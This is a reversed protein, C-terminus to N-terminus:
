LGGSLSIARSRKRTSRSVLSPKSTARRSRSNRPGPSNSPVLCVPRRGIQERAHLMHGFDDQLRVRLVDCRQELAPGAAPLLKTFHLHAGHDTVRLGALVLLWYSKRGMVCRADRTVISCAGSGIAM